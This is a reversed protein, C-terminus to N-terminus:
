RVVALQVYEYVKSEAFNNSDRLLEHDIFRAEDADVGPKFNMNEPIIQFILRIQLISSSEILGPDEVAIIRFNFDGELSVEEKMERALAQKMTEGHDMGGGPLDWGSRGSEKVVLVQGENNLVLGKMSVRYLYDTKRETDGYEIVGNIKDQM